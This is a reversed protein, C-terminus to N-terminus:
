SAQEVGPVEVPLEIQVPQEIQIPDGIPGPVQIQETGQQEQDQNQQNKMQDNPQQSQEQPPMEEQQDNRNDPNQPKQPKEPRNPKDSERDMLDECKKVQKRMMMKVMCNLLPERQAPEAVDFLVQHKMALRASSVQGYLDSVTDLAAEAGGKTGNPDTLAAVYDARAQGLGEKIVHADRKFTAHILKIELVQGETLNADPCFPKKQHHRYLATFDFNEVKKFNENPSLDSASAASGLVILTSAILFSFLQIM